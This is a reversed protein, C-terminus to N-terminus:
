VNEGNISEVNKLAATSAVPNGHETLPLLTLQVNWRLTTIRAMSQHNCSAPVVLVVADIPQAITSRPLGLDLKQQANKEGDHDKDTDDLHNKQHVGIRDKCVGSLFTNSICYHVPAAQGSCAAATGACGSTRVSCTSVHGRVGPIIKAGRQM